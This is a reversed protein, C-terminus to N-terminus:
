RSGESWYDLDGWGDADDDEQATPLGPIEKYHVSPFRRKLEESINKMAEAESVYSTHAGIVVGLEM